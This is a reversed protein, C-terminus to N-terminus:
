RRHTLRYLIDLFRYLRCKALLCVVKKKLTPMDATRLAARFRDSECIFVLKDRKQAPSWESDDYVRRFYTICLAIFKTNVARVQVQKEPFRQCYTLASQHFNSLAEYFNSNFRFVLSGSSNLMYQYGSGALLMPRESSCLVDASFAMDECISYDPHFRLGNETILSRLILKNWPPNLLERDLLPVFWREFFRRADEFFDETIANEKVEGSDVMHYDFGFLLLDAHNAEAGAVANEVIGPKLYDDSDVFMLYKGHTHQIGMNRAKSVGGNEKHIVVVRADAKQLGDSIAPTDDTSGDDVIIVELDRFSQTLISQVCGELTQQSNFAPVVVSVMM